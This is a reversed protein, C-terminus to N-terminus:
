KLTLQWCVEAHRTLSDLDLNLGTGPFPDFDWAGKRVCPGEGLLTWLPDAGVYDPIVELFSVQGSAAALHAHFHPWVHPLIRVASHSSAELIRLATTFGGSATADVRLIPIGGEMLDLFGGLGSLDEGSAVPVCLRSQFSSVERWLASPFPDEVFSVGSTSLWALYDAAEDLTQFMGHLDVAIECRSPIAARIKQILREDARWDLGPLMVKIMSFGDDAFRLAEEVVANVGRDSIFYGAVAMLPLAPSCQGFLKGLPLGQTKAAIDWLCIDFLSAARVLASWGPAFQNRWKDQLDSPTSGHPPLSEALIRTSELLPTGRTYGAAWGLHGTDSRLKLVVYDRTPYCISGLRVPWKLPLRCLWAEAEAIRIENM